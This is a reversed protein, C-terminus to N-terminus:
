AIIMTGPPPNKGSGGRVSFVKGFVGSDETREKWSSTAIALRMKRFSNTPVFSLFLARDIALNKDCTRLDKYEPEELLKQIWKRTVLVNAESMPREGFKNYAKKAVAASFKSRAGKRLVKKTRLVVGATQTGTVSNSITHISEYVHADVFDEPEGVVADLDTLLDGAFVNAPTGHLVRNWAFKLWRAGWKTLVIYQDDLSM